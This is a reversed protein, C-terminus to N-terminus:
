AEIEPVTIDRKLFTIQIQPIYDGTSVRKMDINIFEPIYTRTQEYSMRNGAIAEIKQTSYDYINFGYYEMYRIEPFSSTASNTMNLIYLSQTTNDTYNVNEIYDKLWNQFKSLFTVSLTGTDLYVGFDWSTNVKDLLMRHDKLGIEFFRSKGYTNYFAMDIGFNNELRFFVDWLLAYDKVIQTVLYQYNDYEKTWSARVLPMNEISMWFDGFENEEDGQTEYPYYKVTSRVFDIQKILTIKSEGINENQSYINTLTYGKFFDYEDYRHSFNMEDNKYFICMDMMLDKCPMKVHSRPLGEM